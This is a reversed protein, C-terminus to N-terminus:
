VRASKRSPFLMMVFGMPVIVILGIGLLNKFTEARSDWFLVPPAAVILCIAIVVGFIVPITLCGEFAVHTAEHLGLRQRQKESLEGNRNNQVDLFTFNLGRMIEDNNTNKLKEESM